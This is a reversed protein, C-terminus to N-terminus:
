SHILYIWTTLFSIRSIKRHDAIVHNRVVEPVIGVEDARLEAQHFHLPSNKNLIHPSYASIENPIDVAIHIIIHIGNKMGNKANVAM